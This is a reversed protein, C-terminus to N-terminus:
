PAYWIPSGCVREQITAPRGRDQWPKGLAISDLLLYRPAPLGDHLSKGALADEEIEMMGSLSQTAARTLFDNSAGARGWDRQGYAWGSVVKANGGSKAVETLLALGDASARVLVRRTAEDLSALDESQDTGLCVSALTALIPADKAPPPNETMGRNLTRFFWLPDSQPPVPDLVDRESAVFPKGALWYSLPALRTQDQLAHTPGLNDRSDYVIRLLLLGKPTPSRHVGM